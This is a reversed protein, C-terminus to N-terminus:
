AFMVCDPDNDVTKGFGCMEERGSLRITHFGTCPQVNFFYDGPIAYWYRDDRFTVTMECGSENTSNEPGSIIRKFGSLFYHLNSLAALEIVDGLLRGLLKCAGGDGGQLSSTFLDGGQQEKNATAELCGYWMM